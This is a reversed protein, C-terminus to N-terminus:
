AVLLDLLEVLMRATAGWVTDGVLEFFHMARAEAGPLDWQEERHVDPSYLEFLPVTFAREVEAPNPHLIPRGPLVGVFPTIPAPSAVTRVPSLTGIIDVDSAQIGVEEAAERLAADLLSEGVDV